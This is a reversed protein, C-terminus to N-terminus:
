LKGYKKEYALLWGIVENYSEIGALQKNLKLYQDFVNSAIPSVKNQRKYFFERIEKRDKRVLSDLNNKNQKIINKLGGIDRDLLFMKIEESQAYSFMDLYVSYRFYIDSSVSATLFGVFNAESESAYGIQHAMEHCAIFPILIRPIDSRVQAEGTFPNYYGTYGFYNGLRSYLSSKISKSQYQLFHFDTSVTQYNKDAEDFIQELSPLPLSTDKIQRRCENVKLILQNTLAVVEEKCYEQPQLKLQHAIGQRSYNLGWLINFWIYLWMSKRLVRLISQGLYKWSFQRIFISIFFMVLKILLWCGFLVYIIDGISFPIWGTINRLIISINLYFNTSYNQEIWNPFLQIIQIAAILLVPIAWKLWFLGKFVNNIRNSKM